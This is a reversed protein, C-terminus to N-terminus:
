AVRLTNVLRSKLSKREEEEDIFSRLKELSDGLAESLTETEEQAISWRAFDEQCGDADLALLCCLLVRRLIHLRYSLTKLAKLGEMDEFESDSYGIQAEEADASNIDYIDFYKDIDVDQILPRLKACAEVHLPIV